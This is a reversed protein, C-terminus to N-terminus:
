TENFTIVGVVVITIVITAVSGIVGALKFM